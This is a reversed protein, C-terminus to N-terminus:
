ERPLEPHVILTLTQESCQLSSQLPRAWSNAVNKQLPASLFVFLKLERLWTTQTVVVYNQKQLVFAAM